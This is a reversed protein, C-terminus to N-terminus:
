FHGYVFYMECKEGILFPLIVGILLHGSAPGYEGGGWGRRLLPWLVNDWNKGISRILSLSRIQNSGYRIGSISNTVLLARRNDNSIWFDVGSISVSM